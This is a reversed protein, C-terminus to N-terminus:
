WENRMRDQYDVGDIDMDSWLGFAEDANSATQRDLYDKIAQRMLAARSTRRSKALDDLIRIQNQDLDILTRMLTTWVQIDFYYIVPASFGLRNSPTTGAHAEM